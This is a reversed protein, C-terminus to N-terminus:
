GWEGCLDLPWWQAAQDASLGAGLLGFLKGLAAERTMPGSPLVGAQLLHNGAAYHAGDMVGCPCQSIGVLVVGRARAARLADLFRADDTPGTGSGYLELVLGSVGTHLVADLMAADVGPYLPLVGLPVPKRVVRYDLRAIAERPAVSTNVNATATTNETATNTAHTANAINAAHAADDWRMVAFADRHRSSRKTARTGALLKGHFFVHVGGPPAHHLWRLAGFLNDWADTDAQSAPHMAGTVCVPVPLDLLLFSLAAATHALTDTGHLILVGRCEARAVTRVIAERMALWHQQTVNSSDIPPEVAVYTWPVACADRRLAEAARIRADFGAAPQWGDPGPTMGITGGTYLILIPATM